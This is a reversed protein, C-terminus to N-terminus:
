VNQVEKKRKAKIYEFLKVQATRVIRSNNEDIFYQYGARIVEAIKGDLKADEIHEREKVAEASKEQGRYESKLKPRFQEVGSSELAFVLENRVEKLKKTDKGSQSLTDIHAELNDICRIVRLCFARIITWDYGDQLKKVKEQQCSAYERIASVQATLDKLTDTIPEEAKTKTQRAASATLTQQLNGTQKGYLSKSFAEAQNRRKTQQESVPLGKKLESKEFSDSVNTNQKQETNRTSLKGATAASKEATSVAKDKRNQGSSDDRGSSDQLHNNSQEDVTSWGFKCLTKGRKAELRSQQKVNKKDEGSGDSDVGIDELKQEESDARLVKYFNLLYSSTKRIGFIIVRALILLFCVSIVSAGTSACVIGSISIIEKLEKNQKYEKVKQPWGEGYLFEAYPRVGKEGASLSEIDAKLRQQQQLKLQAESTAFNGFLEAFSGRQEPSEELWYKYRNFYADFQSSTKAKLDDTQRKSKRQEIFLLGWVAAGVISLVLGIVVVKLMIRNKSKKTESSM